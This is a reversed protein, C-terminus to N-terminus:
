PGIHWHNREYLVSGVPSDYREYYKLPKGGSLYKDIAASTRIDITASGPGHSTRGTKGGHLWWETGGTVVVDCNCGQQIRAVNIWSLLGRTSTCNTEGVRSCEKTNISIRRGSPPTRLAGATTDNWPSDVTVGNQYKGNVPTQPVSDDITVVITKNALNVETELLDPNITYLILYAGFALLLGFIANSIREKGHEKSSILESTMYELGGAMIMVMALVASVGLFIKIMLNLYRGLAHEGTPDFDTLQMGDGGETIIPSLLHYPEKVCVGDKVTAPAPCITEQVCFPDYKPIGVGFPTPFCKQPVVVCQGDIQLQNDPCPAAFLPTSSFLVLLACSTLLFKKFINKM